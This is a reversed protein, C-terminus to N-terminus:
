YGEDQRAFNIKNKEYYAEQIDEESFGLMSGLLLFSAFMQEYQQQNRQKSFELIHAFVINFAQTLDDTQQPLEVSTYTFGADLGLSMLFHINDVYEELIVHKENAPKNSWFKFCRTENALEGLEVFLALLKEQFLDRGTLNHQEM